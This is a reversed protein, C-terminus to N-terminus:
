IGSRPTYRRQYPAVTAVATSVLNNFVQPREMNLGFLTYAICAHVYRLIMFIVKQFLTESSRSLDVIEYPVIETPLYNDISTSFCHIYSSTQHYDVAYVSKKTLDTSRDGDLPHPELNTKWAFGDKGSWHKKVLKPDEEIKWEKAFKRIEAEIPEGAGNQLAWHMWYQKDAIAFRMYDYIRKYFVKVDEDQTLFRLTLACEVLSRMLGYAEDDLGADLLVFGARALGFAKSLLGLGMMDFPYLIFLRPRIKLANFEREVADIYERVLQIEKNRDVAM